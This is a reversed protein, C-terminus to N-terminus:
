VFVNGSRRRSDSNQSTSARTPRRATRPQALKKQVLSALKNKLRIRLEPLDSYMSSSIDIVILHNAPAPALEATFTPLAQLALACKGLQIVETRM